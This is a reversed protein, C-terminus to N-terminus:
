ITYPYDDDEDTLEREDEATWRPDPEQLQAAAERAMGPTLPEPEIGTLEGTATGTKRIPM